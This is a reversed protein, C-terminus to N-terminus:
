ARGTSRRTASGPRAYEHPDLYVVVKKPARDLAHPEGAPLARGRASVPPTTARRLPGRTVVETGQGAGCPSCTSSRCISRLLTSAYDLVARVPTEARGMIREMGYVAGLWHSRNILDSGGAGVFVNKNHNAIGIVEHPVLQGVSIIADWPENAILPRGRRPRLLRALKAAPASSSPRCEGLAVVGKRWDHVRFLSHPVGPFMQEIEAPTMPQIQTGIAPLIAIEAADRLQRISSAPSSGAWSHLRTIDPPLILVRKLPGRARLQDLLSPSSLDARAETM